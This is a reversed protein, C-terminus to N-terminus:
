CITSLIANPDGHGSVVTGFIAHLIHNGSLSGLIVIMRHCEVAIPMAGPCFQFDLTRADAM